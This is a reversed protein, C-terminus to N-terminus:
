ATPTTEPASVGILRENEAGEGDFGEQRSPALDAGCRMRPSGVQEHVGCEALPVEVFGPSSARCLSMKRARSLLVIWAADRTTIRGFESMPRLLRSIRREVREGAGPREGVSRIRGSEYV